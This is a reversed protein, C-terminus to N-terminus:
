WRTVRRGNEYDLKGRDPIKQKKGRGQMRNPFLPRVSGNGQKRFFPTGRNDTAIRINVADNLKRQCLQVPQEGQMRYPRPTKKFRGQVGEPFLLKIQSQIKLTQKFTPEKQTRCLATITRPLPSERKDIQATRVLGTKDPM